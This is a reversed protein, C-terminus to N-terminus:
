FRVRDGLRASLTQQASRGLSNGRLNLHTLTGLHASETLARAGAASIRNYALDLSRLGALSSGAALARAREPDTDAIALFRVGPHTAALHARLAGIRGAGIVAVGIQRHQVTDGKM